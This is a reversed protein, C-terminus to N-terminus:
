PSSLHEMMEVTGKLGSKREDSNISSEGDHSARSPDRYSVNALDTPGRAAAQDSPPRGRRAAWLRAPVVNCTQSFPSPLAPGRPRSPSGAGPLRLFLRPLQSHQASARLFLCCARTLCGKVLRDHLTNALVGTAVARAWSLYGRCVGASGGGRGGRCGAAGDKDRDCPGRTHGHQSSPGRRAGPASYGRSPGEGPSM